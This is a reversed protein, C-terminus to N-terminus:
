QPRCLLAVAVLAGADTDDECVPLVLGDDVILWGVPAPGAHEIAAPRETAFVGQGTIRAYLEARARGLTVDPCFRAQYQRLCRPSLRILGALDDVTAFVDRLASGAIDWTSAV